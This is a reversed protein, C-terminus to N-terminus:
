LFVIANSGPDQGRRLASLVAKTRVPFASALVAGAQRVARRNAHTSGVVMIVRDARSDRQKQVAARVQAQVDRLRTIFELGVALPGRLMVDFARLDGPLPVSEELLVRWRGPQVEALFREQLGLQAADRLRGKAPYLRMPFALGVVAAFLALDWASARPDDGLEIRRIKSASWGLRRAVEAQTLGAAIRAERLDTGLDMLDRRVRRAADDVASLRNAM